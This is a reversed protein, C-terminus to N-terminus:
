PQLHYSLTLLCRGVWERGDGVGGRGGYLNLAIKRLDWYFM